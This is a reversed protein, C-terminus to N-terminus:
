ARFAGDVPIVGTLFSEVSMDTSYVAVIELRGNYMTSGRSRGNSKIAVPRELIRRVLVECESESEAFLPYALEMADRVVPQSSSGWPRATVETVVGGALFVGRLLLNVAQVYDYNRRFGRMAEVGILLERSSTKPQTVSFDARITGNKTRMRHFRPNGAAQGAKKTKESIPIKKTPVAVVEDADEPASYGHGAGTVKHPRFGRGHRAM